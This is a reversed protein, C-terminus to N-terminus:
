VIEASKNGSTKLWVIWSTNFKYYGPISETAKQKIFFEIMYM